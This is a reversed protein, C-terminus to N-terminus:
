PQEKRAQELGSDILNLYERRFEEIDHHQQLYRFSQEGKAKLEDDSLGLYTDLAAQLTPM